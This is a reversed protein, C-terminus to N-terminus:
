GGGCCIVWEGRFQLSEDKAASANKKKKNGVNEGELQWIQKPAVMVVVPKDATQAVNPMTSQVSQVALTRERVKDSTDFGTCEQHNESVAVLARLQLTEM